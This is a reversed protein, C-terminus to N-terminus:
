SSFISRGSNASCFVIQNYLQEGVLTPQLVSFDRLFADLVLYRRWVGNRRIKLSLCNLYRFNVNNKYLWCFDSCKKTRFHVQLNKLDEMWPMQSCIEIRGWFYFFISWLFQFLLLSPEEGKIPLWLARCSDLLKWVFVFVFRLRSVDPSNSEFSRRATPM